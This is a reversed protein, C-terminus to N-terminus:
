YNMMGIEELIHQKFSIDSVGEVNTLEQNNTSVSGLKRGSKSLSKDGEYCEIIMEKSKPSYYMTLYAHDKESIYKRCINLVRQELKNFENEM